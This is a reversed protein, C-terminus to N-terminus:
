IYIYHFPRKKKGFPQSSLLGELQCRQSSSSSDQRLHRLPLVMYYLRYITLLLRSVLHLSLCTDIPDFFEIFREHWASAGAPAPATVTEPKAIFAKVRNIWDSIDDTPPAAAATTTQAPPPAFTNAPVATEGTYTQAAPAESTM